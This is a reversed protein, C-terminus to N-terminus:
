LDGLGGGVERPDFRAFTGSPITLRSSVQGREIGRSSWLSWGLAPCRLHFRPGEGEAKGAVGGRRLLRDGKRFCSDSEGVTTPFRLRISTSM